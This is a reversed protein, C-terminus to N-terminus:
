WLFNLFCLLGPYLGSVRGGFAEDRARHPPEELMRQFEQIWGTETLSRSLEGLVRYLDTSGESIGERGQRHPSKEGVGELEALVARSFWKQPALVSLGKRSGEMSGEVCGNLFCKKEIDFGPHISYSLRGAVLHSRTEHIEHM